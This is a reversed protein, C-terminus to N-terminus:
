ASGESYDRHVEKWRGDVREVLGDAELMELHALASLAAIAHLARDTDAYVISVVEELTRPSGDRLAALVADARETRHALYGEIVARGGDLPRFHGPYIRDVDLGALRRLSRMYARMDGDPPAIVATGEGLISDGSLLSAAGELSFCLHDSSHGPTHLCKLRAGGTAVVHGDDVPAVTEGGAPADGYALVPAGSRAALAAVGGVHDQHRHTVLIHSIRGALAEVAAMYAPDDVAPDVVCTPGSGVVYTNTGPGTMIGPNPALVVAVLPSLRTALVGGPGDLCDRGLSSAAVEFSDHAALRQLMEVTPPAMLLDGAALATLADPPTLWRCSEVEAPDPVPEWGRPARVLFFRADFRIPAGLPTVWRGAFVLSDTALSVGLALCRGLFSGPDSADARNLSEIPGDGITFGVEEFAERLACVAAAREDPGTPDEDRLPAADAWRPDRDAAAVAGGPFVAAGGMFRLHRPRITLLVELGDRGDRLIVLTAAPRPESDVSTPEGPTTAM